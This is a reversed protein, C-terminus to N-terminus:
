RKSKASDNKAVPKKRSPCNFSANTHGWEMQACMWLWELMPEASPAKKSREGFAQYIGTKNLDLPQQSPNFDTTGLGAALGNFQRPTWLFPAQKPCNEPTLNVCRSVFYEGLTRGLMRGAISDIPFHV